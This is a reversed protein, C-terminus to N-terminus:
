LEYLLYFPKTGIGSKKMKEIRLLENMVYRQDVEDCCKENVFKEILAVAKEGERASAQESRIFRLCIQTHM